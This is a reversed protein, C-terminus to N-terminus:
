APPHVQGIWIDVKDITTNPVYLVDGPQLFVQSPSGWFNRSQM